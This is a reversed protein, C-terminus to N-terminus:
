PSDSPLAAIFARVLQSGQEDVIETALPPMQTDPGRELMRFLLGSQEPEGPAIRLELDTGEFSQLDVNVSTAYTSTHEVSQQSVRLRLDLNTDPRASGDPNHCNGCNAHLYGLAERAVADGPVTYPQDPPHSLKAEPEPQQVASYGLLRGREGRHCSGCRRTEPVDHETGRVDHQGAPVFRADEEGEMWVFAGMFYDDPSSGLRAVLRTELRRGASSFEKWVMTGVPFQWHDMDSSDIKTGAPLRLWRQKDAGDSWLKYAPEFAILDPALEKSEIDRYLGTESLFFPEESGEPPYHVEPPVWSGGDDEPSGSDHPQPADDADTCAIVGLWCYISSALWISRAAAATM